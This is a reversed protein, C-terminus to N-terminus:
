TVFSQDIKILSMKTSQRNHNFNLWLLWCLFWTMYYHQLFKISKRPNSVILESLISFLFFSSWFILISWLIFLSYFVSFPTPFFCKGLSFDEIVFLMLNWNKLFFGLLLQAYDYVQDEYFYFIEISAFGCGYVGQDM